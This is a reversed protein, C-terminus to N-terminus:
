TLRAFILSFTLNLVCHLHLVDWVVTMKIINQTLFHLSIVCKSETSLTSCRRRKVTVKPGLDRGLRHLPDGFLQHLCESLTLNIDWKLTLSIAQPLQDERGVSAHGNHLLGKGLDTM